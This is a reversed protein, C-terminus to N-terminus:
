LYPPYLKFGKRGVSAQTAPTAPVNNSYNIPPPQIYPILMPVTFFHLHVYSLFSCHQIFFRTVPDQNTFGFHLTELGLLLL